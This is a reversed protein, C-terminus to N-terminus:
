MVTDGWAFGVVKDPVVVFLYTTRNQSCISWDRFQPTSDDFGIRSLALTPEVAAEVEIDLAPIHVLSVVFSGLELVPAHAVQRLVDAM